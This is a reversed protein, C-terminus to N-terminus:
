REHPSSHFRLGLEYSNQQLGVPPAPLPTAKMIARIVFQDFQADGSPEEIYCKEVRGDPLLMISVVTMVDKAGSDMSQPPIWNERVRREVQDYYARFRIDQVVPEPGEAQPVASVPEAPPNDTEVKRSIRALVDDLDDDPPEEQVPKKAPEPQARRSPVAVKKKKPSPKRAPKVTRPKSPAAPANKKLAPVESPQVLRVQYQPKYIVRAGGPRVLFSSVVFICLHLLASILIAKRLSLMAETRPRQSLDWITM